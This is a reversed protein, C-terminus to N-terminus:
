TLRGYYAFRYPCFPQKHNSLFLSLSPLLLSYCSISHASEKKLSPFTKFKSWTLSRVVRFISFDILGYVKTFKFLFSFVCVVFINAFWLRIFAQLLFVLLEFRLLLFYIIWNLFPCFIQISLECLFCISPLWANSFINLMM